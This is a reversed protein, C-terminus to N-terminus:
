SAYPVRGAGAASGKPQIPQAMRECERIMGRAQQALSLLEAANPVEKLEVVKGDQDIIALRLVKMRFDKGSSISGVAAPAVAPKGLLAKL